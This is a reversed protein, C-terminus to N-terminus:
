ANPDEGAWMAPVFATALATATVVVFLMVVSALTASTRAHALVVIRHSKLAM